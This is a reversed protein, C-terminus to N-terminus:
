EARPIRGIGSGNLEFGCAILFGEMSSMVAEFPPEDGRISTSIDTSMNTGTPDINDNRNFNYNQEM